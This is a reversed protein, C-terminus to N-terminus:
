EAAAELNVGQAALMWGDLAEAEKESLRLGLKSRRWLVDDATSAWEQDMMWRVEREYLNWGFHQGMDDTTQADGLMQVAEAGYARVLRLAWDLDLFPYGSRLITVLTKVGDVEFDGGPLPAGATWEGSLDPFYPALKDLAKEALRRYTTIKGGFINLLPADGEGGEVKLVYDRTAATASSAGDDYLPRVGSYTWVIDSKEIPKEFYESAASRLYDAEEATCVAESPDGHHDADTTGILTFDTEYPIAFVIRGDSQQFIYPKPHEFLKRTVIHSGRVLRIRDATNERLRNQIIDSVWPGGANVVARAEVMRDAGTEEDHLTVQWHDGRREATTCTTRPLILAGLQAAQKANLVVLRSDEVWCDSYEFAHTYNDKLPFGAPDSSLDLSRTKPLLKRGGLHDYIFLGLRLLWRPRLGKHHPLVFRLPWSIHPMARLLTEREM